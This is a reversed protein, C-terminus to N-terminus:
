CIARFTDVSSQLGEIFRSFWNNNHGHALMGASVRWGERSFSAQNNPDGQNTSLVTPPNVRSTALVLYWWPKPPIWQVPYETLDEGRAAVEIKDDFTLLFIEPLDRQLSKAAALHWL